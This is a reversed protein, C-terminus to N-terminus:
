STFQCLAVNLREPEFVSGVAFDDVQLVTPNVQITGARENRQIM